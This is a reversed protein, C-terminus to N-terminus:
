KTKFTHGKNSLGWHPIFEVAAPIGVSRLAFVALHAYNECAGFKINILTGPKIDPYIFSLQEIHVPYNKLSDTIQIAVDM